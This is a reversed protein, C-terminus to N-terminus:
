CGAFLIRAELLDATMSSAKMSLFLQTDDAYQHHDIGHRKILGGVPSLYAAFLLPGLVSGQPVGSSRLVTDSSYQGLKVYQRRDTLYTQLWNFATGMVGFEMELRRLLISHSITDFAASIDLSILITLKKDDAAKYLSDMM